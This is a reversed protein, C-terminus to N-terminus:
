ECAPIEQQVLHAVAEIQAHTHLASFAFRLRASNEPVTPPRIAAVLFGEAELRASAAVAKESEGIIVPVIASQAEALGLLQTFYRAHQLPKQCCAPDNEIIRLGTISAAVASPPLGTSYIVSRAATQLYDILVQSGCVYGGYSGVAKSLTGMQIVSPGCQMDSQPVVGLGHADDVMLWADYREALAQLEVLPARDGDMSFVTETLILCQQYQARNEELLMACHEMNNHAFRQFNAGSLRIADIMSAHVLKDAIILDGPGVLAPIIGINALFGSGFVCAAATGKYAALSAELEDYLPYNGTVLRSAAAGAGYQALAAQSAAVVDPHQSLGLYDNCSFSILKNGGREVQSGAQRHTTRLIRRRQKSELLQLKQQLIDDLAPM